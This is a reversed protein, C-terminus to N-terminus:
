GALVLLALYVGDLKGQNVLPVTILLIVLTSWNILLGALATQLGDVRAERAQLRTLDRSLARVHKQHAAARGAILLEGAGQIGEVNMAFVALMILGMHSVSSYAVLSKVDKQILAMLGGYIIGIICLVGLYPLCKQLADPFMPIAFRLFGYTGMKLLVAALIVSGATPAEVHADPLWTHVPFMPVKVAFAALFAVFLWAQFRPELTLTALQKFDLTGCANYLAIMGVFMLVSGALTFLLFKVAAYVRGPGGWVGILLFVPIVMLEEKERKERLHPIEENQIFDSALFDASVLLIAMDASEEAAIHHPSM